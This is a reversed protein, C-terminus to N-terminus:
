AFVDALAHEDEGAAFASYGFMGALIYGVAALITGFFLVKKISSLSPKELENYIAPINIQYM